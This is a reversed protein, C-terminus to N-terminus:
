RNAKKKQPTSDTGHTYDGPTTEREENQRYGGHAGQENSNCRVAAALLLSLILLVRM